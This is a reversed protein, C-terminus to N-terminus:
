RRALEVPSPEDDAPGVVVPSWSGGLRALAQNLEQPRCRRSVECRLKWIRQQQERLQQHLVVTQHAADLRHQRNVLLGCATASMVLIILILKSFM